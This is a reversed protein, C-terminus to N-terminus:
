RYNDGGFSNPARRKKLEDVVKIDFSVSGDKGKVLDVVHSMVEQSKKLHPHWVEVKYKGVPVGQIVAMGDTKTKAFYPTDLVYIYAKMWDHINCGIVVVGPNDFVVPENPEKGPPYLPIEFKKAPSFSYVHHRIKDNNPFNIKTGVIVPTVYDIFTKDIQDIITPPTTTPKIIEGDMPKASIVANEVPKGDDNLVKVIMGGEAYVNTCTFLIFITFLFRNIHLCM